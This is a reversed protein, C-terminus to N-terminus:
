ITEPTSSKSNDACLVSIRGDAEMRAERVEALTEVGQLRLQSMLEDEIIMERRMNGRHLRGSKVLLSAPPRMFSRLAPYRYSLYNFLLGWAVLTFILLVGDTISKYDGGMANQAASALLVIILLDSIAMSGMHRNPAFRIVLFLLWYLITARVVIELPPTDPWFLKGWDVRFWREMRGEKPLPFVREM